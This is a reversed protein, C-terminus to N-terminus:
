RSGSFLATIQYPPFSGMRFFYPLDKTLDAKNRKRDYIKKSRFIQKLRIPHGHKEIEEERSIKRNMRIFDETTINTKRKMEARRNHNFEREKDGPSM